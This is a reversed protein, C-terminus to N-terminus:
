ANENHKWSSGQYVNISKEDRSAHVLSVFFYIVFFYFRKLYVNIYVYMYLM